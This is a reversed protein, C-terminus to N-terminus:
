ENIELGLESLLEDILEGIGESLISALQAAEQGTIRKGGDSGQDKPALTRVDDLIGKVYPALRIAIKLIEAWKMLCRPYHKLKRYCLEGATRGM